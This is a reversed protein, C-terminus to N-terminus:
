TNPGPDSQDEYAQEDTLDLSDAWGGPMMAGRGMGMGYGQMMGAGVGYGMMGAGYGRGGMMGPGPGCDVQPAVDQGPSSDALSREPWLLALWVFSFEDWVRFL